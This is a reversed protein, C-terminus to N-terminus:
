LHENILKETIAFAKELYQRDNTKYSVASYYDKNQDLEKALVEAFAEIRIKNVRDSSISCACVSWTTFLSKNILQKPANPKLHQLLCKRFCYRGFLHYCNDMARLFQEGIVATEREQLANLKDLTDDLFSNMDGQYTLAGRKWFYFGIFRLVLEQAGMRQDIVGPEKKATDGGTAKIFENSYALERLLKRTHTKALSNRIEQQNLPKGGENIRKFIDYKVKPPSSSEIINVILQTQEIRRQFRRELAKKEPIGGETSFYRGDCMGLHELNRLYFKNSMFDRITSLRQLGDVVHFVGDKDQSFYFVPLPIGLLTSEILRSKQKMNWVLHRQFDPNLDIDQKKIMDFIQFIPFQASKVKIDDPNYPDTILSKDNESVVESETAEVGEMEVERLERLSDTLREFLIDRFSNLQESNELNSVVGNVEVFQVWTTPSYDEVEGRWLRGNNSPYAEEQLILTYEQEGILVPVELQVGEGAHLPAQVENYTMEPERVQTPHIPVGRLKEIRNLHQIFDQEPVFFADGLGRKRVESSLDNWENQLFRELNEVPNGKPYHKIYKYDKYFPQDVTEFGPHSIIFERYLHEFDKNTESKFVIEIWCDAKGAEINSFVLGVSRTKNTEDQRATFGVFIYNEDGQFWYGKDLRQFRNVQRVAFTFIPNAARYELLKDLLLNSWKKIRADQTM